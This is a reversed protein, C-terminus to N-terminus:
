QRETGFAQRLIQHSRCRAHRGGPFHYRSVNQGEIQTKLSGSSLWETLLDLAQGEPLRLRGKLSCEWVVSVRWGQDLLARENNLDRCVNGALKETWFERRTQPIVFLPCDHAHWFCGNVFIAANWKPLVLDPRGPLRKDQLRFRFGRAHLGRRILMEPKTDRGRIAAMNRRRAPSVDDSLPLAKRTRPPTM